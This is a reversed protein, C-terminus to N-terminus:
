GIATRRAALGKFRHFHIFGPLAGLIINRV